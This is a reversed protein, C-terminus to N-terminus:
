FIHILSLLASYEGLSLGCTFQPDLKKYVPHAKLAYFAAMSVTFIAPQCFATSTLKEQPGNFIVDTLGNVIRDAADFIKKAESSTDYFERGMGVVQAGQGPFILATKM